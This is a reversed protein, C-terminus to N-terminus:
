AGDKGAAEVEALQREWEGYHGDLAARVAVREAEVARAAEGDRYVEPAAARWDLQTLREELAAIERELEGVRKKARDLRRADRKARERAEIRERKAGSGAEGAAADAQAASEV